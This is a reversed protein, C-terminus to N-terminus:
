PSTSVDAVPDFEIFEPRGSDVMYRYFRRDPYRRALDANGGRMDRAWVVDGDLTARNLYLYPAFALFGARDFDLEDVCEAALSEWTPLRLNEDETFGAEGEGERAGREGPRNLAALSDLTTLLSAKGVSLRDARDLARHLTCADISAYLLTSRPVPIGEAWMRVILRSGWGDPIVVVADSIGAAAADRDPHYNFTPTSDRYTRIRSPALLVIGVILAMVFATVGFGSGFRKDATTTCHRLMHASRAVVIVMWPVASYLLRPGYLIDRHWYFFLLAMLATVGLVPLADRTCLTRRGIMFAAAVLLLVPIPLDFLYRNLQFLDMGTIGVARLPTLPIGFPVDHFGLTHSPGWLHTYGFELWQGTTQANFWLTPVSGLVGGVFIWAFGSLRQRSAIFTIFAVPVAAAVADLPRFATMLGLLLGTVLAAIRRRPGALATACAAAGIGITAAPLHSMETGAIAVAFPSLCLLIAALRGVTKGATWTAVRYTGAVLAAGFVPNLVWWAGSALGTALVLSQGPPFQSFWRDPGLIMHLTAFHALELPPEMWLRGALFIRAQFLQAFGDVNRPNGDAVFFTFAWALGAFTAAAVALFSRTAWVAVGRRWASLLWGNVRRGSLIVVVLTAGLTIVGGLLWLTWADKFDSSATGVFWIPVPIVSWLAGIVVVTPLLVQPWRNPTPVSYPTAQPM